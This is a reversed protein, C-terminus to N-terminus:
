VKCPIPKTPCKPKTLGARIIAGEKCANICKGCQTCNDEEIVHVFRKKGLIAEEKCSDICEECGICKSVLIHFTVFKNCEMAECSKKTIHNQIEEYFLNLSSLVTTALVSDVECLTHSSMQNALQKIKELDGTKGKKNIIDSLIMNIQTVGEFGFVCRGCSENEYEEAINKLKALMCDTENFIQIKDTKLEIETDLATENVFIGMPYAFYMAKFQGNVQMKELIKRPTVTKPFSFVENKSVKGHIYVTKEDMNLLEEVTFVVENKDKNRPIPNEHAIAKLIASENHYVFSFNEDAMIIELNLNPYSKLEAELINKISENTKGLVIYNRHCNKSEINKLLQASQNNLINISIPSDKHTSIGNCILINNM